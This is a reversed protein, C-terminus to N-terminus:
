LHLLAVLHFLLDGAAGLEEDGLDAPVPALREFEERIHFLVPQRDRHYSVHVQQARQRRGWAQHVIDLQRAAEDAILQQGPHVGLTEFVVQLTRGLLHRHIPRYTRGTHIDAADLVIFHEDAEQPPGGLDTSIPLWELLIEAPGRALSEVQIIFGAVPGPRRRRPRGKPLPEEIERM